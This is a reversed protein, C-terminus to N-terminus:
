KQEELTREQLALWGWALKERDLFWRDPQTAPTPTPASEQAAARVDQVTPAAPAPRAAALLAEAEPLRDPDTLLAPDAPPAALERQIQRLRHVDRAFAGLLADVDPASDADLAEELRRTRIGEGEWRLIAEALRRRWPSTEVVAAVASAIDSVFAGFEDRPAPAAAVGMGLLAPVEAPAVRIQEIEVAALIRNVAGQLERVNEIPLRALVDVVEPDLEAGREDIMQSLVGRRTEADPPTVEVTLGGALRSALRADLAPIEQPLRDSAVVVQAGRQVMREWIRVLEEQTRAKGAVDQLDDLLLLDAGAGAERFEDVTGAAISSTLRDVFSELPEYHVVLEPELARAMHGVAMLLHTKGLGSPGCIVLPNYSRGPSEAARRAAAAALRNGAGVVFRDFVLQSDLSHIM